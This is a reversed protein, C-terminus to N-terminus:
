IHNNCSKDSSLYWRGKEKNTEERPDWSRTRTRRTNVRRLARMRTRTRRADQKSCPDRVGRKRHRWSAVRADTIGADAIGAVRSGRRV